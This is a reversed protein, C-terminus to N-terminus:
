RSDPVSRLFTRYQGQQLLLLYPGTLVVHKLARMRIPTCGQAFRPCDTHPKPRRVVKCSFGPLKASWESAIASQNDSEQGLYTTKKDALPDLPILAM